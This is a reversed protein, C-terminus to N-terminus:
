RIVKIIGLEARCSNDDGRGLLPQHSAFADAADGPWVPSPAAPTYARHAVPPRNVHCRTLPTAGGVAAIHGSSKM